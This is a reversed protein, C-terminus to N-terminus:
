TASIFLTYTLIYIGLKHLYGGYSVVPIGYSVVSITSVGHDGVVPCFRFNKLQEMTTSTSANVKQPGM